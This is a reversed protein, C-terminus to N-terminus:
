KKGDEEQDRAVRQVLTGLAKWTAGPIQVHTRVNGSGISAGWRVRGKLTQDLLALAEPEKRISPFRVKLAELGNRRWKELDESLLLEGGSKEVDLRLNVAVGEGERKIYFVFRRPSSRLGLTEKLWTRWEVPIEGLCAGCADSPIKALATGVWPLRPGTSLSSEPSRQVTPPWAPDAFWPLQELMKLHSPEKEGNTARALFVHRDDFAGLAFPFGFGSARLPPKFTVVGRSDEEAQVKKASVERIFDVIRDRGEVIQGEAQLVGWAKERQAPEYYAMSAGDIRVRGLGELSLKNATERSFALQLVAKTLVDDFQLSGFPRLDIAGFLDAKPFFWKLSNQWAAATGLRMTANDLM